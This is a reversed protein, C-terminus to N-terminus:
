IDNINYYKLKSLKAAKYDTIKDGIFFSKEKNLQWKKLIDTIM